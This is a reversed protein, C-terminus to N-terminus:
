LAYCFYYYYSLIESEQLFIKMTPIPKKQKLLSFLDTNAQMARLYYGYNSAKSPNREMHPFM